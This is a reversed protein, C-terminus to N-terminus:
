SMWTYGRRHSLREGKTVIQMYMQLQRIMRKMLAEDQPLVIGLYVETGDKKHLVEEWKRLQREIQEQRESRSRKGELQLVIDCIARKYLPPQNDIYKFLGTLNTPTPTKASGLRYLKVMMSLGAFKGEVEKQEPQYSDVEQFISSNLELQDRVGKVAQANLTTMAQTLAPAAQKIREKLEPLILSTLCYYGGASTTEFRLDQYALARALIGEFEYLNVFQDLSPDFPDAELQNDLHFVGNRSTILANYADQYEDFTVLVNFPIAHHTILLTIRSPDYTNVISYEVSTFESHIGQANQVGLVSIKSPERTGQLQDRRYNLLPSAKKKLTKVWTRNEKLHVNIDSANNSDSPHCWAHLIREAQARTEPMLAMVNLVNLPMPTGSLDDPNPVGASLAALRDEVIKTVEKNLADPSNPVYDVSPESKFEHLGTEPLPALQEKWFAEAASVVRLELDLQKAFERLVSLTLRNDIMTRWDYLVFQKLNRAEQIAQTRQKNLKRFPLSYEVMNLRESARAIANSLDSQTQRVADQQVSAEVVTRLSRLWAITARLGYGASGMLRETTEHRLFGGTFRFVLDRNNTLVNIYGTELRKKVHEAADGFDRSPDESGRLDDQVSTLRALMVDFGDPKVFQPSQTTTSQQEDLRHETSGGKLRREVEEKFKSLFAEADSKIEHTPLEGLLHHEIIRDKLIIGAQKQIESLPYIIQAIGLTSYFTRFGRFHDVFKFRINDLTADVQEGLRTCILNDLADGVIPAIEDMGRLTTEGGLQILYANDYPQGYFRKGDTPDTYLSEDEPMDQNFYELDLLAAYANARLRERGTDDKVEPLVEPLLFVGIVDCKATVQSKAVRRIRYALDIFSGGGTGGSISCLVFVRLRAEESTPSGGIVKGQGSMHMVNIVADTLMNDVKERSNLFAVRGLRRIQQAGLYIQSGFLRDPLLDKLGGEADNNQSSHRIADLDVDGIRVMEAPELRVLRNPYRPHPATFDEKSTDIGIFRIREKYNKYDEPESFRDELRAKVHVALKTGQGGLGIIVTSRLSVSRQEVPQESVSTTATSNTTM